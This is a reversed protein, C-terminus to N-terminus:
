GHVLLNDAILADATLNYTFILAKAPRARQGSFGASAEVGIRAFGADKDSSGYVSARESM